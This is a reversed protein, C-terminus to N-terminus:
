CDTQMYSEVSKAFTKIKLKLLGRISAYNKVKPRAEKGASVESGHQELNPGKPIPNM